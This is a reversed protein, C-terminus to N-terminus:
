FPLVEEDMEMFIDAECIQLVPETCLPREIVVDVRFDSYNASHKEIVGQLMQKALTMKFNRTVEDEINFRLSVLSELREDGRGVFDFHLTTNEM